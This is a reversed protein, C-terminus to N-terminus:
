IVPPSSLAGGTEKEASQEFLPNPNYSFSLGPFILFVASKELSSILIESKQLFRESQMADWDSTLSRRLRFHMKQNSKTAGSM